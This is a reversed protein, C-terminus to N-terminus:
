NLLLKPNHRTKRLQSISVYWESAKTWPLVVCCEEVCGHFYNCPTKPCHFFITTPGESWYTVRAKNQSTACFKKNLQRSEIRSGILSGILSGIQLGIQDSGSKTSATFVWKKRTNLAMCLMCPIRLKLYFVDKELLLRISRESTAVYGSTM